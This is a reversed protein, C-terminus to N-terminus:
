SFSCPDVLAPEENLKSTLYQGFQSINLPTLQFWCSLFGVLNQNHFQSTSFIILFINIESAMKSEIYLLM